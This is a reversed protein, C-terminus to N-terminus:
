EILSGGELWGHYFAHDSHVAGGTGQAEGTLELALLRRPEKDQEGEALSFVLSGMRQEIM